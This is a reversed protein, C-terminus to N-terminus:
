VSDPKIRYTGLNYVVHYPMSVYNRNAAYTVSEVPAKEKLIALEEASWPTLSSRCNFHEPLAELANKITAVTLTETPKTTETTAFDVGIFVRPGEEKKKVRDPDIGETAKKRIDDLKM